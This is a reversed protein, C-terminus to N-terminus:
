VIQFGTNQFTAGIVNSKEVSMQNNIASMARCGMKVARQDAILRAWAIRVISRLRPVRTMVIIWRCSFRLRNPNETERWMSRSSACVIMAAILSVGVSLGISRM